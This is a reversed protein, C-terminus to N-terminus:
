DRLREPLSRMFADVSAIQHNESIFAFDTASIQLARSGPVAGIVAHQVPCEAILGLLAAWAPLDLSTLVDLAERAQWPTGAKWQRTMAIRLATLGAQTERDGGRLGKVVEILQKAAAMCVDEYLVTWGVQFVSVLDHEVLFADPLAAGAPWNELGLNCTAIAADSAEEPTLPRAQISCGAAIANALFALEQSRTSFAHYDRDGAFQLLAQIRALRPPPGQPGGLLARPPQPLVGADRLLDVVANVAAAPDEAVAAADLLPRPEVAAATEPTWEMGQFYARAIPNAPPTSGAARDITRSMQLFARAQAPTMYGQQERRRERTFAVDFMSQEGHDLLHDLGDDEYGANSLQRCGRMLRHFYVQHQAGLANLIAVVADWADARKGVVLYGGVEASPGDHSGEVEPMEDGDSTERPALTAPDFVLVYQSFAAVALSADVGTLTQAASAAGSEAMVELWLGFRDADFQEDLGPQAPSWLDLDFVRALQAPTALAVLEGCAELGCNQIVRHLVEPPLQPVVRALHPTDLIRELLGRREDPQRTAPTDPVRKTM